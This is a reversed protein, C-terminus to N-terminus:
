KAVIRIGNFRPRVNVEASSDSMRGTATMLSDIARLNQGPRSGTPCVKVPGPASGTVM